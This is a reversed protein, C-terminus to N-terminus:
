EGELGNTPQIPHVKSKSEAKGELIKKLKREYKM